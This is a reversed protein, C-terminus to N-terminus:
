SRSRPWTALTAPSAKPAGPKMLNLKAQESESSATATELSAEKKSSNALYAFGVWRICNLAQGLALAIRSETPAPSTSRRTVVPPSAAALSAFCTFQGPLRLGVWRIFYTKIWTVPVEVRRGSATHRLAESRVLPLPRFRPWAQVEPWRRSPALLVLLAERRRLALDM